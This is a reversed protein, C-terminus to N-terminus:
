DMREKNHQSVKRCFHRVRVPDKVGPRIEVGSSVDVAFPSVRSLVGLVNDGTLGGALFCRSSAATAAAFDPDALVGTGGYRGASSGDVMTAFVDFDGPGPQDKLPTGKRVVKIVPLPVEACFEPTEDGSLQVVRIGSQLASREVEARTPNVFVGVPTVDEPLSRIIEGASEPPIARPSKIYFIFGLYSAGARHCLLADDATTIGCIKIRVSSL